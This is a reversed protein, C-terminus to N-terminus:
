RNWFATVFVAPSNWYITVENGAYSDEHDIFCAAAPQGTLHEKMCDDNLNKNPGGAVMGPVPEEISDGVSPRHHPHLVSRDGYGTVYSLDLVNRGLLYHLHSAATHVYRADPQIEHALLLFMGRNLLVMNSGWIYDDEKMAVQYGDSEATQIYSIAESLVNQKLSAYLEPDGQKAGGLLYSFTGYGGLDAWGLETKSFDEKALQQFVQHYKVDGTTRYLEAAAWYREDTDTEDGYEGTSIDPPNKFGPTHPHKELWRFGQLSSRLCAEAFGKDYSHYIRAALAMVATHSATATASIPSFVLDGLDNEPMVDLGPFHRTTLKHYSGGSDQDQMKLLWNLEVKCEHLVDPMTDNSEPLPVQSRFAEPYLEYALLLDVVAKAGPVVYKGYDGADHWGGSADLKVHERGHIIGDQTHCAAHAWPGAFEETLETGCRLYYFAKLLGQQLEEYPRDEIIFSASRENGDAAAYYRGPTQLETFDGLYVTKGSAQDQIPGDGEGTFVVEETMENVISFKPDSGTIILTKVDLVPYGIQNVVMSRKIGNNM